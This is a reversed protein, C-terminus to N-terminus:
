KFLKVPGSCHNYQNKLIRMLKLPLVNHCCSFHSHSCVQATFTCRSKLLMSQLQMIVLRVDKSQKSFYLLFSGFNVVPLFTVDRFIMCKFM